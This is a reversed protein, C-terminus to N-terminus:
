RREVNSSVRQKSVKVIRRLSADVSCANGLLQEAADWANVGESSSQSADLEPGLTHLVVVWWWLDRGGLIIGLYPEKYRSSRRDFAIQCSELSMKRDKGGRKQVENGEREM